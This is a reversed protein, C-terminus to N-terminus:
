MGGKGAAVKGARGLIAAGWRKEPAVGLGGGGVWFLGGSGRATKEEEEEEKKEPGLVGFGQGWGVRRLRPLWSVPGLSWSAPSSTRTRSASSTAM